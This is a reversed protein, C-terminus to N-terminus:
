SKKSLNHAKLYFLRYFKLTRSLANLFHTAFVCLYLFVFNLFCLIGFLVWFFANCFRM